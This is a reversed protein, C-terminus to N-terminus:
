GRFKVREDRRVRIKWVDEAGELVNKVTWNQSDFVVLDGFRPSEVSEKKIILDAEQESDTGSIELNGLYDIIALIVSSNYVIPEAFEDANFFISLIDDDFQDRLGM